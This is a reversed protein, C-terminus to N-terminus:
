VNNTFFFNSFFKSTNNQKKLYIQSKPSIEIDSTSQPNNSFLKCTSTSDDLQEYSIAITFINTSFLSLCKILGTKIEKSSILYNMEFNQSLKFNNQTNSTFLEFFTMNVTQFIFFLVIISILNVFFKKQKM